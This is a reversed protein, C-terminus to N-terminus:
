SSTKVEGNNDQMDTEDLKALKRSPHYIVTCSSSKPTSVGHSRWIAQEIRTDNGDLIKEMCKTLTWTTCGYLLISAVVAQFFNRKIKDTQDSKWIVSLRDIARWVKELRTNINTESSSVSSGLYTFKGLLKLSSGNQTAIDGTQNFCM